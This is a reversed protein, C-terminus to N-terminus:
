KGEVVRIEEETLDYLKYVYKDIKNEFVKINSLPDNSKAQIINNVYTCIENYINSEFDNELNISRFPLQRLNEPVVHLDDSLWLQFYWNILKSCLLGLLYTLKHNESLFLQEVNAETDKKGTTALIHKPVCVILTQEAYLNETDLTAVIGERGVVVQVLIKETEFMEPYKPRHMKEPIYELYRNWKPICYKNIEKGEVYPKFNSGNKNTHIRASKNAGTKSDHVDIGIGIYCFDSFPKSKKWLKDTIMVSEFKANLRFMNQYTKDFTKQELNWMKISSLDTISKRISILNSEREKQNINRQIVLICTSVMAEFVKVESVDYISLINCNQLIFKRILMAYNQSLMPYPIILSLTGSNELIKIAKEIFLIYIDYKGTITQYDRSRQLMVRLSKDMNNARVYPPNGIVVDFGDKLGFMWEMDFFPSVANQDYPNWKSLLNAEDDFNNIKGINIEYDIDNKCQKILRDLRNREEKNKDVRFFTPQEPEPEGFLQFSDNLPKMVDVWNEGAYQLKENELRKIDINLRSIKEADPKTANEILKDQITKRLKQDSTRLEKKEKVNKASFHKHRVDLLDKKLSTIETNSLNLRDSFDKKLAILTNAAVFKTELNPLPIIGFNNKADKTPIQECVLSIFFRLKSIQVAISQIDVGYICNEILHFKLDYINTVEEDELKTLLEVMRNLLGMPFAGSGCAPDLIKIEKLKESIRTKVDKGLSSENNSENFLTRLDDEKIEPLNTKLYAILSEDVMYNVIERPTYFSGSQKRATEKTEPNFAGLLNEFVKGLLEPDLAVDSDVLSNEEITFNYKKLISILGKEEDFFLCNPIFSRKQKDEDRSFGDYYYISGESNKEKDLCEFLGGNLFPVSSFLTIIENKSIKFWSEEKNDRFLTKIGYHENKGQFDKDSAFDREAIPKNLTAFFLNQLIANYYNGDNKSTPNFSKLIKDLKGTEFIDDPILNKQKIFWVFMLRTILRIIHEEIKRDDTETSTDNPYTVAFGDNDSLAWQYWDFLEKYFEKTLKSLSFAEKIKDLSSFDGNGVQNLFTKNTQEKSVYYTFRKPNSYDRKKNIINAYVLSFRFNGNEDYFIFIGASLNNERIIKRAKEYQVIRCKRESIPKNSKIAYVAIRESKETYNAEGLLFTDTFNEDDYSNIEENIPKYSDIKDRFFNNFKSVEFNQIIENLM